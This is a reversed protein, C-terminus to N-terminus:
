PAACRAPRACPRPAARPAPASRVPPTGSPATPAPRSARVRRAARAPSRRSLMGTALATGGGSGVGPEGPAGPRCVVTTGMSGPLLPRPRRFRNPSFFMSARLCLSEIEAGGHRSTRRRSLGPKSPQPQMGRTGPGTTVPNPGQLPLRPPRRHHSRRRLEHGPRRPGLPRRPEHRRLAGARLRLLDYARVLNHLWLIRRVNIRGPMEGGSACARAGAARSTPAWRRPTAGGGAAARHPAVLPEAEALLPLAALHEDFDRPARRAWRCPTSRPHRWAGCTTSCWPRCRRACRACSRPPSSCAAARTPPASSSCAWTGRRRRRGARPPQGPLHLLLAPERLRLARDRHREVILRTPGHTSFGIHRIRGERRFREAVECCGGPRFIRELCTPRHQRRPLRVSGPLEVRLCPSRSRWCASSTAPSTPRASRPRCSSRRARTGRWRRGWSPRAPATAARPRSTTSAWPWRGTSSPRAPQEPQARDGAGRTWSQQYRMGGCSFVPM